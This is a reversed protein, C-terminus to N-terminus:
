APVFRPGYEDLWGWGLTWRTIKQPTYSLGKSAPDGALGCNLEWRTRGGINRFVAGGTHSHGVVANHHSFDRHDGLKSLHGHIVMVDGPLFIEQRGDMVTEVGDFTMSRKLGDMIWTEAQPYQSLTQKLPRLDHNGVAQICRADPCASKLRAWMGEAGARATEEEQQPTFTNHSRPFRGHSLRDYLDGLQVIVEPRHKEAFRYIAELTPQHEFPFHVDPIFLTRQYREHGATPAPMSERYEALHAPLDREFVSNDIKCRKEQIPELGAARVFVSWAGFVQKFAGAGPLSAFEDRTPMRGLEAYQGKLLSVLEHQDM